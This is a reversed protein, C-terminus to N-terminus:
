PATESLLAQWEDASLGTSLRLSYTYTGDTWLALTYRQDQGKLTVNDEPLM